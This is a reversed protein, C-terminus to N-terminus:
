LKAVDGTATSKLYSVISNSSFGISGFLCFRSCSTYHITRAYEGTFIILYVIYVITSTSGGLRYNYNAVLVIFLVEKSTAVILLVYITPLCCYM